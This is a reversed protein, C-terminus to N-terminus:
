NGITGIGGSIVTALVAALVDRSVTGANDALRRLRSKEEPDDVHDAAQTLAKVLRSVADDGDPYLGVRLYADGSVDMIVGAPDEHTLGDLRVLGQRRLSLFARQVEELPLGLEESIDAPTVM